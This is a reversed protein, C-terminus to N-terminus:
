TGYHTAAMGPAPQSEGSGFLNAGTGQIGSQHQLIDELRQTIELFSPRSTPEMQPCSPNGTLEAAGSAGWLARFRGACAPSGM